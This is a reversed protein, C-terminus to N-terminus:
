RAERELMTARGDMAAAVADLQTPDYNFWGALALLVNGHRWLYIRAPVADGQGGTLRTTSGDYLMGGDGLALTTGDGLGWGDLSAMENEYFPLAAAADLDRDFVMAWSMYVSDPGAFDAYRGGVYGAPDALASIEATSMSRIPIRRVETPNSVLNDLTWSAPMTDEWLVVTELDPLTLDRESAGPGLSPGIVQLAVALAVLVAAAAAVVGVAPRYRTAWADIAARWPPRQPQREIQDLAAWVFREPARDAGDSLWARLRRDAEREFTM